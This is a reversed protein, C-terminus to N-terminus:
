ETDATTGKEQCSRGNKQHPLSTNACFTTIYLLPNCGRNGLKPAVEPLRQGKIAKGQFMNRDRKSERMRRKYSSLVFKSTFTSFDKFMNCIHLIYKYKAHWNM